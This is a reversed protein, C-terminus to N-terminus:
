FSTKKPCLWISYSFKNMWEREYFHQNKTFIIMMMNKLLLLPLACWIAFVWFRFSGLFYGVFEEDYIGDILWGVWELDVMVEKMLGVEVLVVVAGLLLEVVEGTCRIPIRSYSPRSEVHTVKRQCSPFIAFIYFFLMLLLLLYSHNWKSMLFILM